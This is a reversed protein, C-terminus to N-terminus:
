QMGFTMFSLQSEEYMKFNRKTKTHGNTDRQPFKYKYTIKSFESKTGSRQPHNYETLSDEIRVDFAAESIPNYKDRKAKRQNISTGAMLQEKRRKSLMSKSALKSCNNDTQFESPHKAAQSFCQYELDEGDM